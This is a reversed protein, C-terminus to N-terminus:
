NALVFRYRAKNDGLDIIAQNAEKMPREQIWPKVKLKASLNLMEEIMQPSGIASGGM